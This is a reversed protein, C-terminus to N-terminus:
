FNCTPRQEPDPDVFLGPVSRCEALARYGIRIRVVHYLYQNSDCLRTAAAAGAAAGRAAAQGVIRAVNRAGRHERQALRVGKRKM